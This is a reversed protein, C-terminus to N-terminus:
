LVASIPGFTQALNTKYQIQYMQNSTASWTFTVANGSKAASQIVPPIVVTLTGNNLTVLYNTQRDAPDILSPVIPYAGAPSNPTAACNYSATVNDNNQLGIVVGSPTIM